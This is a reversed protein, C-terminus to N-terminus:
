KNNNNNNNNNAPATGKKNFFFSLIIIFDIYQDMMTWACAVKFAVAHKRFGVDHAEM